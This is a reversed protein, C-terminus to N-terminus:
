KVVTHYDAYQLLINKKVVITIPREALSQNFNLTIGPAIEFKNTESLRNQYQQVLDLIKQETLGNDLLLQVVSSRKISMVETNTFSEANPIREDTANPWALLYYDTIYNPNYLWGQAGSTNNRIEFAFTPINKNIYQLTAKEDIYIINGDNKEIIVDVGRKQLTADSNRTISKYKGVMRIYFHNDLWTGFLEEKRKDEHFNSSVM